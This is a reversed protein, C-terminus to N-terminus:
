VMVVAEIEVLYDPSALSSIVVFTSAPLNGDPYAESRAEGIAPRYALDTTYVTIKVIDALTAGLAECMTALNAWVQKAQAQPDGRGVLNGDRDQAVQGAIFVPNGPKVVAHSYGTPTAVGTPNVYRTTM